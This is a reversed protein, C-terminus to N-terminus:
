KGNSMEEKAVAEKALRSVMQGDYRGSFNRKFYLMIGGVDWPNTDPFQMHQLGYIVLEQQIEDETLQSPLYEQFFGMENVMSKLVEPVNGDKKLLEITEESTKLIKKITQVVEVDTSERNGDNKGIKEAEGLLFSLCQSRHKEGKKKAQMMDARITKILSM